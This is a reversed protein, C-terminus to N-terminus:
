KSANKLAEVCILPIAGQNSLELSCKAVIPDAGKSVLDVVKQDEIHNAYVGLACLAILVIGVLTWVGVWFNNEDKFM